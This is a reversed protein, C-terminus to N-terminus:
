FWTSGVPGQVYVTVDVSVTGAAKVDMDIKIEASDSGVAPPGASFAWTSSAGNKNETTVVQAVKWGNKLKVGNFLVFSGKGAGLACATSAHAAAHLNDASPGPVIGAKVTCAPSSSSATYAHGAFVSRLEMGPSAAFVTKSISKTVSKNNSGSAAFTITSAGLAPTIDLGAFTMSGKAAIKKLVGSAFVTGHSTDTLTYPVDHAEVDLANYLKLNSITAVQGAIAMAPVEMSVADISQSAGVTPNIAPLSTARQAPPPATGGSAASDLTFVALAAVVACATFANAATRRM